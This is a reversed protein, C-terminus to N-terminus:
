AKDSSALYGRITSWLLCFSESASSSTWAIQWWCLENLLSLLFQLWLKKSKEVKTTKQKKEKKERGICLGFCVGTLLFYLAAASFLFGSLLIRAGISLVPYWRLSFSIFTHNQFNTYSDLLCKPYVWIASFYRAASPWKQFLSIKLISKQWKEEVATSQDRCQNQNIKADIRYNGEAKQQQKKKKLNHNPWCKENVCVCVFLHCEWGSMLKSYFM